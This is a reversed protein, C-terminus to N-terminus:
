MFDKEVTVRFPYDQVMLLTILVQRRFWDLPECESLYNELDRLEM